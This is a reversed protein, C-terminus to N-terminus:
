YAFPAPLHPKTTFPVGQARLRKTVTTLTEVDVIEHATGDGLAIPAAFEYEIKYVENDRDVDAVEALGQLSRTMATAARPSRTEFSVVGIERLVQFTVNPHSAMIPALIEDVRAPPTDAKVTALGGFEAVRMIGGEPMAWTRQDYGQLAVYYALQFKPDPTHAADAPVVFYLRAYDFAPPDDIQGAGDVFWIAAEGFDSAGVARLREIAHERFAFLDIKTHFRAAQDTSVSASDDGPAEPASPSSSCAALGLSFFASGLFRLKMVNLPVGNLVDEAFRV